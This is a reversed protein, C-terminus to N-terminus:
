FKGSPTGRFIWTDPVCAAMVSAVCSMEYTTSCPGVKGGKPMAPAAAGPAYPTGFGAIPIPIPIPIPIIIGCAAGAIVM